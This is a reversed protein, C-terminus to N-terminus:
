GFARAETKRDLKVWPGPNAYGRLFKLYFVPTYVMNRVSKSNISM